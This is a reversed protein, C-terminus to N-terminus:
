SFSSLMVQYMTFLIMVGYMLGMVKSSNLRSASSTQVMIDRDGLVETANSSNRLPCIAGLATTAVSSVNRAVTGIVGVEEETDTLVEIRPSGSVTSNRGLDGLVGPTVVEGDFGSPLGTKPADSVLCVDGSSSSNSLSAFPNRPISGMKPMPTTTGDPHIEEVEVTPIPEKVTSVDPTSGGWSLMSYVRKGFNLINSASAVNSVINLGSKAVNQVVGPLYKVGSQMMNAAFSALMFHEWTFDLATGPASCMMDGLSGDDTAQCANYVQMAGMALATFTGAVVGLRSYNMKRTPKGIATSGDVPYVWDKAHKVGEFVTAVAAAAHHPNALAYDFVQDMPLGSTATTALLTLAVSSSLEYVKGRHKYLTTAHRMGMGLTGLAGLAGVPNEAVNRAGTRVVSPIAQRLTGNLVFQDALAAGTMLAATSLVGPRSAVSSVARTITSAASSSPTRPARFHDMRLQHWRRAIASSLATEDTGAYTETDAPFDGSVGNDIASENIGNFMEAVEAQLAPTMSSLSFARKIADGNYDNGDGVRVAEHLILDEICEKEPRMQHRKCYDSYEGRSQHMLGAVGQIYAQDKQNLKTNRFTGKGRTELDSKVQAQAEDVANKLAHSSFRGVPLKSLAVTLAYSDVSAFKDKLAKLQQIEGRLTSIQASNSPDSADVARLTTEKETIKTQLRQSMQRVILDAHAVRKVIARRKGTDAPASALLKPLTTQKTERFSSPLKKTLSSSRQLPASGHPNGKGTHAGVHKFRMGYFNGANARDIMANLADRAASGPVDEFAYSIKQDTGPITFSVVQGTWEIYCKGVQHFQEKTIRGESLAKQLVAEQITIQNDYDASTFKNSLNWQLGSRIEDKDRQTLREASSGLGLSSLISM